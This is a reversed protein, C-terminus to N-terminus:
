ERVIAIMDSASPMTIPSTDLSLDAPLTQLDPSYKM